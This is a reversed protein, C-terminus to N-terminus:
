RAPRRRWKRMLAVWLPAVQIGEDEHMRRRTRRRALLLFLVGLGVVPFQV